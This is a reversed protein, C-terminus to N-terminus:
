VLSHPSGQRSTGGPRVDPLLLLGLRVGDAHAEVHVPLHGDVVAPGTQVVARDVVDDDHRVERGLVPLDVRRDGEVTQPHVQQGRSPM